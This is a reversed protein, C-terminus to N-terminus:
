LAGELITRSVEPNINEHGGHATLRAVLFNITDSGPEYDTLRTKIGLSEFFRVTRVHYISHAATLEHGIMHTAWDQPVGAGIMGNAIQRPPLTHTKTPNLISFQPFMRHSLFALKAQTDRRTIVSGCNMESCTAPLILARADPPILDLLRAITADGFVNKTPNHFAFNLM